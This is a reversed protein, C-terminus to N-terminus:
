VGAALGARACACRRARATHQRKRRSRVRARAHPRDAHRKAFARPTRLSSPPRRRRARRRARASCRSGHAARARSGRRRASCSSLFHWGDPGHWALCHASPARRARASDRALAAAAVRRRRAAEAESCRTSCKGVTAAMARCRPWAGRPVTGNPSRYPKGAVDVAASRTATQFFFPPPFFRSLRACWTGIKLPPFATPGLSFASRRPAPRVSPASRCAHGNGANRPPSKSGEFVLHTTQVGAPSIQGCTAAGGSM